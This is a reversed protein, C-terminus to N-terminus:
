LFIRKRVNQCCELKLSKLNALMEASLQQDAHNHYSFLNINEVGPFCSLLTELNSYGLIGGIGTGRYSVTKVKRGIKKLAETLYKPIPKYNEYFEIFQYNRHFNKLVKNEAGEDSSVILSFREMLKQSNGILRSWRKNVLAANLLSKFDLFSLINEIVEYPLKSFPSPASVQQKKVLM